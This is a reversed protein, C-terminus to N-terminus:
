ILPGTKTYTEDLHDKVADKPLTSSSREHKQREAEEGNPSASGPEVEDTTSSQEARRTAEKELIAIQDETRQRRNRRCRVPSKEIAVDVIDGKARLTNRLDLSSM